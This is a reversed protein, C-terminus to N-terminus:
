YRNRQWWHRKEGMQVPVSATSARNARKQRRARASGFCVTFFAILLLITATVLLWYAPGLSAPSGDFSENIRHRAVVFLVTACILAVLSVLFAIGSIISGIIDLVVNTSLSVLLAILAIAAAIPVLVLTYTLNRAIWNATDSSSPDLLRVVQNADYGLRSSTCAETGASYVCAGWMGLRIRQEGVEARLFSVVDWIPTSVSCIILLVLAIFLM